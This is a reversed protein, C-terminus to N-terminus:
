VVFFLATKLSDRKKELESATLSVYGCCCCKPTNTHTCAHSRADKRGNPNTQVM